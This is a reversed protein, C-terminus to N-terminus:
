WGPLHMECKTTTDVGNTAPLLMGNELRWSTLFLYILSMVYFMSKKSNVWTKFEKNKM